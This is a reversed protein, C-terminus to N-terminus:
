MKLLRDLGIIDELWADTVVEGTILSQMGWGIDLAVKGYQRAIYPALILANVGAALFCLDFDYEAIEEKVRPIEEYEYISIAGTVEFGLKERLNTNLADRAQAALSSILLIKRGKLMEEFREAQSYMFVRRLNAEYIFQPQIQYVAFVQEAFERAVDVMLNYGVVDAQKAAAVAADRAEINPFRIGRHFFGSQEGRNANFAERHSMFETESYITYQAMVFAETAGVSVVSFPTKHQLAEIIKDMLEQSGLIVPVGSNGPPGEPFYTVEEKYFSKLISNGQQDVMVKYGRGTKLKM